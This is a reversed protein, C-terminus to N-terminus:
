PRASGRRAAHPTRLRVVTVMHTRALEVLLRRAGSPTVGALSAAAALTLDPGHECGLLRFLTAAPASLRQYSWSLVSRVASRTDGTDLVDLRAAHDHLEDVLEAISAEAHSQALDAAIRLALPLRGCLAMLARVDETAAYVREGLLTRLLTWSEAETLV